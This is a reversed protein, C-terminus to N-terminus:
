SYILFYQQYQYLFIINSLPKHCIVKAAGPANEHKLVGADLVFGKTKFTIIYMYFNNYIM